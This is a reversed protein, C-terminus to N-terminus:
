HTFVGNDGTYGEGADITALTRTFGSFVNEQFTLDAAMMIGPHDRRLGRQPKVVGM